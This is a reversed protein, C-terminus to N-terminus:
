GIRCSEPIDEGILMWGKVRIWSCVEERVSNLLLDSIRLVKAALQLDGSGRLISSVVPAAGELIALQSAV